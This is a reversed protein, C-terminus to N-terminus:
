GTVIGWRKMRVYLNQRPIGSLRAAESVNGDASELLRRMYDREFEQRAQQYPSVAPDAAMRTEATPEENGSLIERFHSADVPGGGHLAVLREIAHLLERVNGPWSHREVLQVAAPTFPGAHKGFKGNFHELFHAALRIADGNRERLPPLKLGIVNIRYYLDERFRGAQVEGTLPKNTACILRFDSSRRETSGIRAFSGDQLVRLLSAQLKPSMDAIEDLFLTGGDAKEFYGATTKAAGTFAGREYGFLLSELLNEPLAGCNVDLFRGAARPSQAHVIKALLDKGTGSEGHLLVTTDLRAVQRVQAMLREVAPSGGVFAPAERRGALSARLADIERYARDLELANDVVRELEELDEFPKTLYDFLGERVASMADRIDAYGTILIALQRPRRGRMERLLDLGNADPLRQDMLVLNFDEGEFLRRAEAGDAALRVEVPKDGLLGDLLTRTYHDDDVVLIKPRM